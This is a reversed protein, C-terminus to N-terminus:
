QPLAATISRCQQPQHEPAQVVRAALQQRLQACQEEAERLRQSLERKAAKLELMLDQSVMGFQYKHELMLVQAYSGSLREAIKRTVRHDDLVLKGCGEVEIITAGEATETFYISPMRGVGLVLEYVGPRVRRLTGDEDVMRSLHDDIIHLTLGTAEQLNGRTILHGLATLEHIADVIIQRSRSLKKSQEPNMDHRQTKTSVLTSVARPYRVM